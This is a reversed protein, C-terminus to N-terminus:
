YLGVIDPTDGLRPTEVTKKKRKINEFMSRIVISRLEAVLIYTSSIQIYKYQSLVNHEFRSIKLQNYTDFDFM